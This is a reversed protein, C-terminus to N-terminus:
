GSCSQGVSLLELIPARVMVQVFIVLVSGLNLQRVRQGENSQSPFGQLGVLDFCNEVWFNLTKKVWFNLATQDGQMMNELPELAAQPRKSAVDPFGTTRDNYFTNTKSYGYLDNFFRIVHTECMAEKM